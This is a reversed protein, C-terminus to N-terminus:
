SADGEINTVRSSASLRRWFLREVELGVRLLFLFGQGGGNPGRRGSSLCGVHVFDMSLEGFTVGRASTLIRFISGTSWTVAGAGTQM